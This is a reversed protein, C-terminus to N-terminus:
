RRSRWWLATPVPPGPPRLRTPARPDAIGLVVADHAQLQGRRARLRRSASDSSCRSSSRRRPRVSGLAQRPSSGRWGRCPRSPRAQASLRRTGAAGPLAPGAVGDLLGARRPGAGVDDTLLPALEKAMVKGLEVGWQDFSDIGWISGEVFVTHEYLAVLQGLVSPTLKPALITSSPRNGPM